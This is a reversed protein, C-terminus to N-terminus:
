MCVCFIIDIGSVFCFARKEKDLYDNNLCPLVLYSPKPKGFNYMQHFTISM